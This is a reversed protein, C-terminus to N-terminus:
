NNIGYTNNRFAPLLIFILEKNSSLYFALIFYISEKKRKMTKNVQRVLSRKKKNKKLSISPDSQLARKMDRGLSKNSGLGTNSPSPPLSLFLYLSLFLSLSLSLTLHLVLFFSVYTYIYLYPLPTQPNFCGKPKHWM